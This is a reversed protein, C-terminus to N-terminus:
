KKDFLNNIIVIIIIFSWFGINRGNGSFVFFILLAALLINVTPVRKGKKIPLEEEETDLVESLEKMDSFESLLKERADTPNLGNKIMDDFGLYMNERIKEKIEINRRTVPYKEFTKELYLDIERRNNDIERM